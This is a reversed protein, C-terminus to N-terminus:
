SGKAGRAAVHICWARSRSRPWASARPRWGAEDGQRSATPIDTSDPPNLVSGTHSSIENTTIATLQQQHRRRQHLPQRLIVQHPRDQPRDLLHVKVTERLRIPQPPRTTGGYSGATSPPAEQHVRIRAPVPGRPPDLPRTPLVHRELHDGPHARRIVRRDRLEAAPVLALDRLQKIVHEPQATLRPQHRDPHDRDIPRLDLRVRRHILVAAVALM